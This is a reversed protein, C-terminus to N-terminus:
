HIKTRGQSGSSVTAPSLEEGETMPWLVYPTELRRVHSDSQRLMNTIVSKAAHVLLETHGSRPRAEVVEFGLGTVYDYDDQYEDSGQPHVM